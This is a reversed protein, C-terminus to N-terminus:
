GGNQKKGSREGYYFAIMIMIIQGILKPDIKDTWALKCFVVYIMLAFITRPKLLREIIKM